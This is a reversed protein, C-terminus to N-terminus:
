FSWGLGASVVHYVQERTTARSGDTFYYTPNASNYLVGYSAYLYFGPALHLNAGIEIGLALGYDYDDSGNDYDYYYPDYYYPDYYLNDDIGLISLGVQAGAYFTLAQNVPVTFRYGLTITSLEIDNSNLINDNYPSGPPLPRGYHPDTHSYDGWGYSFSIFLWHMRAPDVAMGGEISLSQFDIVEDEEIYGGGTEFLGDSAFMGKWGVQVYSMPRHYAPMGAVMPQPAMVPPAIQPTSQVTPTPAVYQTTTQVQTRTTPAPTVYQATATSAILAFALSTNLLTNKNMVRGSYNEVSFFDLMNM